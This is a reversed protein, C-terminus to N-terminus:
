LRSVLLNFKRMKAYLTTRSVALMRAARSVNGRTAALARAVAEREIEDMSEGGSPQVAVAGVSAARAEDAARVDEAAGAAALIHRPLHSPDIVDGELLATVREIINELERVNGPWSYRELVEMARPSVRIRGRGLKTAVKTLLHNVLLPIDDRRERLPPINVTFVNLRYYLDRRFNGEEVEQELYKNTAAIIQVDVPIVMDGGVRTVKREQLVRLLKTQMDLPMEGIEDLLLTGGSALEFKGPRGEPRAGTFTGKEYGFLESEILERPIAACNIAVFPGDRRPSANHVAQAFLEKGTGSEGTILVTSSTKAAVSAIRIAELMGASQGVIDDFTFSAYAGVMFHVLRKVRRIERFVDVVGILKGTQDRIPIASKIFHLSGARNSSVLFEKDIYGEGTELVSLIIPKFDVLESVHKGVAERHDVGLIKGGMPNIYTVTGDADVTLVGDSMNEVMATHYKTALTLERYTREVRLQNEIAAATAVVMALTHPHPATVLGPSSMDLIGAIQGHPDRIPAASCTWNKHMVSFHQEGAVQVPMGERLALGIANTGIDREDWRVGPALHAREGRVLMDQSGTVDLIRAESDAVVIFHGTDRVLDYLRDTLPRAVTLLQSNAERRREVEEPGLTDPRLNERDLGLSRCRSWSREIVEKFEEQM